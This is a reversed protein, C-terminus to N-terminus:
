LIYLFTTFSFPMFNGSRPLKMGKEANNPDFFQLEKKLDLKTAEHDAKPLYKVHGSNKLVILILM